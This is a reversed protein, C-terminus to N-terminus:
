ENRYVRGGKMVFKVRELARIDELPNGEVAIVDAWAGSRIEGAKGAVGFLEATNLTASRIADVPKMGWEVAVRFQRANDGHPYVGADTGFAIRAGARVAKAFNERQVAGVQREKALNEELLGNKKGEALTYETNYIDFVLWTGKEKALRIGEDDILSAHEVSDVGALIAEKISQTGHAHAAVRKGQRHAEEVVAAMEEPSYQPTGVNTGKSMVGGSACIKIHDAGYKVNKRVQQRAAWPGDAVPPPKLMTDPPFFNNDCHGGTIGFAPGAVLMRPGVVDGAAIADRLSVDAYNPAGVDRVLTFGAELTKRANRAGVLVARTESMTLRPLLGLASDGLLHTHADMLGPLCVGGVKTVVAGAPAKAQAGAEVIVGDKVVIVAKEVLAGSRVDLMRACELVATQAALPLSMLLAIVIRM